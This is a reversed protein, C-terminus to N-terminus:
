LKKEMWISNEEELVSDKRISYGWAKFLSRAKWNETFVKGFIKPLGKKIAEKEISNKLLFGNIKFNRDIQLNHVYLGEKRRECDLFGMRKGMREFILIREPNFGEWFKNDDWGEPLFDQFYSHMNEKLLNYIFLGDKANARRYKIM